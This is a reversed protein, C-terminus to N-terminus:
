GLAGQRPRSLYIFCGKCFGRGQGLYLARGLLPGEM